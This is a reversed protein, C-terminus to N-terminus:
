FKHMHVEHRLKQAKGEDSKPHHIKFRGHLAFSVTGATLTSGDRVVTTCSKEPVLGIIVVCDRANRPVINRASECKADTVTLM